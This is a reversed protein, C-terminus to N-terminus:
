RAKRKRSFYELLFRFFNRFKIIEYFDGEVEILGYMFYDLLYAEKKLTKLLSERTLIIKIEAKENVGQQYILKEHERKMWFSFITEKGEKIYFQYIKELMEMEEQVEKEREAIQICLKIMADLVSAFQGREKERELQDFLSKLSKM